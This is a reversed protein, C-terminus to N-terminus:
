KKVSGLMKLQSLEHQSLFRAKGRPLNKKTLGAFVVRDLRTVKYEMAEFMRRVIRNRGSHIRIGLENKKELFSLEDPKIPGDELEIGGSLKEFDKQTFNKDLIVKYIKQVEYKPHTLRASLDGDNTLLLLGTTHLDLRGVPYVRERSMNKVLDIVTKRGQPDKATTVFGKPKNLLIYVKQEPNLKKGEFEVDDKRSVKTGLEKVVEGNVKIQGAAILKDAERRSCVGANAIYRNLRIGEPAKQERRNDRRKKM